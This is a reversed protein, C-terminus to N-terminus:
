WSNSSLRMVRMGPTVPTCELKTSLRTISWVASGTGPSQSRTDPGVKADARLAHEATSYATHLFALPTPSLAAQPCTGRHRLSLYIQVFTKAANHDGQPEQYKSGLLLTHFFDGCQCDAHGQDAREAGGRRVRLLLKDGDARPADSADVVSCATRDAAQHVLVPGFMADAARDLASAARDVVHVRDLGFLEVKANHLRVHLVVRHLPRRLELVDTGKAVQARHEGQMGFRQGDKRALVRAHRPHLVELALAEVDAVGARALAGRHLHQQRRQAHAHRVERQGGFELRVFMARRQAVVLDVAEGVDDAVRCRVDLVRGGGAARLQNRHGTLPHVLQHRLMGVEGADRHRASQVGVVGLGGRGEAHDGAKDSRHLHGVVLHVRQHFRHEVIELVELLQM